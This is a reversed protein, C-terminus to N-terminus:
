NSKLNNSLPRNLRVIVSGISVIKKFNDRVHGVLTPINKLVSGVLNQKDKGQKVTQAVGRWKSM